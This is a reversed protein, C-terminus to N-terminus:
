IEDHRNKLEILNLVDIPRYFIGLILKLFSGNGIM